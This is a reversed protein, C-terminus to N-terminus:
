RFGKEEYGRSYYENGRLYADYAAVSNTPKAVLAQREPEVLAVDLADIVQQAIGAQVEFVGALVEDYVHAWLHTADSVRILQPSVRVRSSGAPSREWRVTGELVYEVGLEQGIQRITKATNKYQGSRFLTTYPFLTSRPPRRIM